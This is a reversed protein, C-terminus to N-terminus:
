PFVPRHSDISEFSYVWDGGKLSKWLLPRRYRAEGPPVILEGYASRVGLARMARYFGVKEHASFRAVVLARKKDLISFWHGTISSAVRALACSRWGEVLYVQVPIGNEPVVLYAANGTWLPKVHRRFHYEVTAATINSLQSDLGRALSYAKSAKLFPNDLKFSLISADVVDPRAPVVRPEEPLAYDEESPQRPTSSPYSSPDWYVVQLGRVTEAEGYEQRLVRKAPALGLCVEVEVEGELKSTFTGAVWPPCGGSALVAVPLLRFAPFNVLFRFAVINALERYIRRTVSYRLGAGEAVNKLSSAKLAARLFAVHKEGLQM